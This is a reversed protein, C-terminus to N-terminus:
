AFDGWRALLASITAVAATETRLVRPGLRLGVYEATRALTIEDDSLGGEPGILLMIPGSPVALTSLTADADPDLVLKLAGPEAVWDRLARPAAILPIIRRVGLEVAKQVTYDMREGRSIGQALWLDLPSERDHRHQATVETAVRRKDLAAIGAAYEAGDGNFLVLPAGVSLRLVRAIHNAADGALEVPVGAALPAPHYIRPIRMRETGRIANNDARLELRDEFALPICNSPSPLSYAASPCIDHRVTFDAAYWPHAAAEANRPKKQHRKTLEGDRPTHRAM